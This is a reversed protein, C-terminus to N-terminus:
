IIFKWLGMNQGMWKDMVDYKVFWEIKCKKCILGRSYQLNEKIWDKINDM